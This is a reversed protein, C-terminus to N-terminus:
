RDCPIYSRSRRLVTKPFRCRLGTSSVRGPRPPPRSRLVVSQWEHDDFDAHVGALEASPANTPVLLMQWDEFAHGRAASVLSIATIGQSKEIAPGFRHCGLNEFLIEATNNGERALNGLPLLRGHCHFSRNWQHTSRVFRRWRRLTCLARITLFSRRHYTGLERPLVCVESRFHGRIRSARRQYMAGATEPSKQPFRCQVCQCRNLRLSRLTGTRHAEASVPRRGFRPAQRVYLVKAGFNGLSYKLQHEAGERQRM